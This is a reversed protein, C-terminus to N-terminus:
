GEDHLTAAYADAAEKPSMATTITKIPEGNPGSHEHSFRERYREPRRAKLINVMLTDSYKRVTLMKGDDTKAIRGMAIVPEEVGDVARRRAEDEILDSGDEIAEAWAAAFVEDAAKMDYATRRGIGAADCAARISLGTRLAEIFAEQARPTTRHTRRSM